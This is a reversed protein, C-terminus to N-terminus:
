VAGEKTIKEEQISDKIANVSIIMPLGEYKLAANCINVIAKDILDTVVIVKRKEM